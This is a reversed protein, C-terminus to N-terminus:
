DLVIRNGKAINESAKLYQLNEIVHLGSVMKGCLPIIHDVHYGEPCNKYFETIKEKQLDFWAPVRKSRELKSISHKHRICYICAYSHGDKKSANNGFLSMPFIQNCQLCKKHDIVQLLRYYWPSTGPTGGGFFNKTSNKLLSTDKFAERIAQKVPNTTYGLLLAAEELSTTSILADILSYVTIGNLGRIKKKLVLNKDLNLKDIIQQTYDM